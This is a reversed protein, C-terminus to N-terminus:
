ISNKENRIHMVEVRKGLSGHCGCLEYKSLHFSLTLGKKGKTKLNMGQNLM